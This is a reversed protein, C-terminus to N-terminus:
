VTSSSSKKMLHEYLCKYVYCYQSVTQVMYRREKRMQYITNFIDIENKSNDDAIQLLQDVAIFTGIDLLLRRLIVLFHPPLWTGTRGVGASCHVLWPGPPQIDTPKNYQLGLVRVVNILQLLAAAESPATRDPWSTYQLCKSIVNFLIIIMQCFYREILLLWFDM